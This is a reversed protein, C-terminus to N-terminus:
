LHWDHNSPNRRSEFTINTINLTIKNGSNPIQNYEEILINIRLFIIRIKKLLEGMAYKNEHHNQSIIKINQQSRNILYEYEDPFINSISSHSYSFAIISPMIKGKTM